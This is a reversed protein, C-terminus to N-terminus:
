VLLIFAFFPFALSASLLHIELKRPSPPGADRRGGGERRARVRPTCVAGNIPASPNAQQPHPSLPLLLGQPQPYINTAKLRLPPPRGTGQTRTGKGKM